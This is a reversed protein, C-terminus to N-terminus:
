PAPPQRPCASWCRLWEEGCIQSCDMCIKFSTDPCAGDCARKADECRRACTKEADQQGTSGPCGFEEPARVDGPRCDAKKEMCSAIAGAGMRTCAIVCYMTEDFDSPIADMRLKALCGVTRPGAEFRVGCSNLKRCAELTCETSEPWFGAEHDGADGQPPGPSRGQALREIARDLDIPPSAAPTTTTAWRLLTGALVTGVVVIGFRRLPPTSM